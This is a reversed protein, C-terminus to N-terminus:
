KDTVEMMAKFNSHAYAVHVCTERFEFVDIPIKSKTTCVNNCAINWMHRFLLVSKDKLLV